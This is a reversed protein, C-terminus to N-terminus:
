VGRPIGRLASGSDAAIPAERAVELTISAGDGGGYTEGHDVEHELALGPSGMVSSDSIFGSKKFLSRTYEPCKYPIGHASKM